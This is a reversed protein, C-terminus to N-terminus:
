GKASVGVAEIAGKLKEVLLKAIQDHPLGRGAAVVGAFIAAVLLVLAVYEVTGQGTQSRLWLLRAHLTGTIRYGM